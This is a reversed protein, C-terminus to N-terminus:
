VGRSEEDLFALLAKELDDLRDDADIQSQLWMDEGPTILSADRAEGAHDRPEPAQGTWEGIAAFPDARAMRAMFGGISVATTNMFAELESAREQSLPEAGGFGQLYNGVGQVFLTQWEPANDAGLTADKLRFLAEAEARSVAAPRDSGSAFILRRLLHAEAATIRGSDLLGDRMPGTGTLVAQEVQALAYSRLRQPVSTAREALRALLELEALTELRGDHDIRAILWDAQEDTVYGRPEQGNVLFECLAEVFLETWEPPFAVVRDNITFLAEAEEPAIAGDAWGERRLRLIEDGSIARDATVLAALDRFHMSM